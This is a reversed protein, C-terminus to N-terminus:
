RAADHSGVPEVIAHLTAHLRQLQTKLSGDRRGGPTDVICGGLAISEDPVLTLTLSRMRMVLEGPKTRECLHRLVGLDRPHLRVTAQEDTRLELCTQDVVGQVFAQSVAKAGAIRCIAAFAVDGVCLKLDNVAHEYTQELLKIALRAQERFEKIEQALAHQAASGAAAMGEEYGQQRAREREAASLKLVQAATEDRLEARVQTRLDPLACPSLPAPSSDVDADAGHSSMRTGAPVLDSLRARMPALRVSRIVADMARVAEVMGSIRRAM